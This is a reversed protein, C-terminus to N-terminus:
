RIKKTIAIGAILIFKCRHSDWQVEMEDPLAWTSVFLQAKLRRDLLRHINERLHNEDYSPKKGKAYYGHIVLIGLFVDGDGYWDPKKGKLKKIQGELEKVKFCADDTFGEQTGASLCYGTKKVEIFYNLRKGNDGEKNLCWFDVRRSKDPEASKKDPKDPRDTKSFSWESLHVPTIKNIAAAFISYLNREGYLLPLECIKVMDRYSKWHRYSQSFVNNALTDLFNGILRGNAISDSNFYKRDVSIDLRAM